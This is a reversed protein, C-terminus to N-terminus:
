NPNYIHTFLARLNIRAVNQMKSHQKPSCRGSLLRKRRSLKPATLPVTFLKFRPQFATCGRQRAAHIVIPLSVMQSVKGAWKPPNLPLIQTQNIKKRYSFPNITIESRAMRWIGGAQIDRTMATIHKSQLRQLNVRSEDQKLGLYM